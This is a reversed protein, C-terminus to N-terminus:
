VGNRLIAGVSDVTGVLHASQALLSSCYYDTSISYVANLSGCLSLGRSCVIQSTLLYAVGVFADHYLIALFEHLLVQRYYILLEGPPM